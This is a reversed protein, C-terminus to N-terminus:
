RGRARENWIEVDLERLPVRATSAADELLSLAEWDTVHRGITEAVFRKIHVDPKVVDAGFLKRLYQFGALGFGKIGWGLYDSPRVKKAWQAFTRKEDKVSRGKLLAAMQMTVAKLIRARDAHNYNLEKAVFLHPSEYGNMLNVFQHLSVIQPHSARFSNVRPVVFSDYRRNLSLVCDVINLYPHPQSWPRSPKLHGYDRKLRRALTQIEPNMYKM